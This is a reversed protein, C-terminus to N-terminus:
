GRFRLREWRGVPRAFLLGLRWFAYGIALGVVVLFIALVVDLAQSTTVGLAM